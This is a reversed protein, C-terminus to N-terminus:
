LDDTDVNRLDVIYDEYQLLKEDKENITATLEEVEKRAQLLQINLDEKETELDKKETAWWVCFTRSLM